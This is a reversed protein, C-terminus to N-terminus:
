GGTAERYFSIGGGAGAAAFGENRGTKPMWRVCWVTRDTESHTAVCMRQEVSWVKVKGNFSGSLLYEGTFSWSLSFIWSNHGTLIAVQEGSSVDYLAIIGTDGAAALLTSGPSFSVARVTKVLTPLSHLLRGSDNSFIYVAGSEHGSATYRGNVSLDIALGFSKKTEYERIKKGGDGAITDWVNIRGNYTTSALYRGDESLAIAWVEGATVGDLAM